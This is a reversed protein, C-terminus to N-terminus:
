IQEEGGDVAKEEAESVESIDGGEDGSCVGDGGGEVVM